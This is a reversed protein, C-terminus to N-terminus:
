SLQLREAEDACASPESKWENLLREADHIEAPTMTGKLEELRTSADEDGSKVSLGYWLYAHKRTSSTATKAQEYFRSALLFRAVAHDKQAARCFWLFQRRSALPSEKGLVFMAEADSVYESELPQFKFWQNEGRVVPMIGILAVAQTSLEAVLQHNRTKGFHVSETGYSIFSGGAIETKLIISVFGRKCGFGVDKSFLLNSNQYGNVRLLRKSKQTFEITDSNNAIIISDDNIQRIIELLDYSSHYRGTIDPCSNSGTVVLPEWSAPYDEIEYGEPAFIYHTCSSLFLMCLIAKFPTRQIM